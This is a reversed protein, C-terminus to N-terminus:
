NRRSVQERSSFRASTSVTSTSRLQLSLDSVKWLILTDAEVKKFTHPKVLIIANALDGVTESRKINIPFPRHSIDLVWCFLKFQDSM